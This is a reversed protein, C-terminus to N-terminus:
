DLIRYNRGSGIKESMLTLGFKKKISGALAGRVSHAQWGTAKMMADITTGKPGRLMSIITGLKSSERPYPREKVTVRSFRSGRKGSNPAATKPMKGPARSKPRMATSSSGEIKRRSIKNTSM